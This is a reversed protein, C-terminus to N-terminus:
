GKERTKGGQRDNVQLNIKVIKLNSTDTLQLTIYLTTILRGGGPVIARHGPRASIDSWPEKRIEKGERKGRADIM